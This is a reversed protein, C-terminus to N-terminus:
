QGLAHLALLGDARNQILEAASEPTFQNVPISLVFADNTDLVTVPIDYMDILTNGPGFTPRQTIPGKTWRATAM